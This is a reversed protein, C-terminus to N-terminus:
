AGTASWSAARSRATATRTSRVIVPPLHARTGGRGARLPRGEFVRWGFNAGRAGRRDFIEEVEGQGVDGISWTARAATSRSGGRTACATPTSRARAGQRGAFPNSPPVRYPRSGAGRTSGCSRASCRASTRRTAARATSTAAGAATASGSTCSATPASCSCAATTTPGPRAHSLVLRASGPRRARRERPPVRRDPHRRGDGTYYVYFRGSRAYDPAFAISLLGQEGGARHGTASTSSCAIRAQARRPGRARPRGARRRLPPPPRRSPRHPVGGRDERRAGARAGGPRPPPPPPGRRRGRRPRPPPRRPPPPPRRGAGPRRPRGGGAAWAWGGGGRSAPAGGGWGARPPRGPGRGGRDWGPVPPGGPSWREFLRDLEAAPDNTLRHPGAVGARGHQVSPSGAQFRESARASDARRPAGAAVRELASLHARVADADHGPASAAMAAADLRRARESSELRRCFLLVGANLCEGREVHPVVRLISYQFDERGAREAEEIWDRPAELRRALHEAYPERRGGLCAPGARGRCGAPCAARATRRGGPAVRCRRAARPRPDRPVPAAGGGAPRRLRSPRVARRRPRDPVAQRAVAAPEPQAAHPRRERGAHRAMRRRAALDPPPPRAPNYPLSGPLFDVGLNLGASARILDQIEPDPEARAMEGDLEVLVLEPVPLGLARALEGVVIEAALAKPGQGAGRFKVVYLGDDDAEVLGPLSGGERLPTVYRTATVTRLVAPM